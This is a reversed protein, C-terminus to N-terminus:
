ESGFKSPSFLGEPIDDVLIPELSMKSLGFSHAGLFEDETCAKWENYADEISGASDAETGLSMLIPTTKMFAVRAVTEANIWGLYQILDGSIKTWFMPPQIETITSATKNTRIKM